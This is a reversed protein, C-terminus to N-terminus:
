WRRDRNEHVNEIRWIEVTKLFISKKLLWAQKCCNLNLAFPTLNWTAM